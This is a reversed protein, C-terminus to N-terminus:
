PASSRQRIACLGRPRTCMFTSPVTAITMVVAVKMTATIMTTLATSTMSMRTYMITTMGVVHKVTRISMPTRMVMTMSVATMHVVVMTTTITHLQPLNNKRPLRWLTDYLLCQM